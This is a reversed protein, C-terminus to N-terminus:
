KFVRYNFISSIGEYKRLSNTKPAVIRAYSQEMVHEIIDLNAPINSHRNIAFVNKERLALMGQNYKLVGDMFATIDCHKAAKRVMKIIGTKFTGLVQSHDMSVIQEGIFLYLINMGIIKMTQLIDHIPDYDDKLPVVLPYM